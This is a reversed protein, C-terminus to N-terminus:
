DISGHRYVWDELESLAGRLTSIIGVLSHLGVGTVSTDGFVQEINPVGERHRMFRVLGAGGCFYHGKERFAQEVCVSFSCDPCLMTITGDSMVSGNPQMLTLIHYQAKAM